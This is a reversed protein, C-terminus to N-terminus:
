DECRKMTKENDTDYDELLNLIDDIVDEELEEYTLCDEAIETENNYTVIKVTNSFFGEVLTSVNMRNTGSSSICPSSDAELEATTTPGWEAIIEKIRSIKATKTDVEPEEKEPEEKWDWCKDELYQKLEELEERSCNHPDIIIKRM